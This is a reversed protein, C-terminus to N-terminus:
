DGLAAFLIALIGFFAGVGTAVGIAVAKGTGIGPKTRELRVIEGYPVAQIPVPVRTKPLLLMADTRVSVLTARFRSGDNLRVNLETGVDVREAFSRWIDSSTQAAVSQVAILVILVVTTMVHIATRMAHVGKESISDSVAAGRWRPLAM